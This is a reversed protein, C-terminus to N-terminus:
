FILIEVAIRNTPNYTKVTYIKKYVESTVCWTQAAQSITDHDHAAPSETADVGPEEDSEAFHRLQGQLQTLDVVNENPVSNTKRADATTFSIAM